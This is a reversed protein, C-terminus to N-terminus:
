EANQKLEANRRISALPFSGEPDECRGRADNLFLVFVSDSLGERAAKLVIGDRYAHGQERRHKGKKQM